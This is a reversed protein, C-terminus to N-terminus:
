SRKFRMLPIESARLHSEDFFGEIQYGFFELLAAEGLELPHFPFPYPEYDPDQLDEPDDVPHEGAWYPSEFDPRAGNEELIGNDPALSLSRILVGDRWVGYGLFDVVSHMTHLWACKKGSVKLFHPDLQSPYDIGFERAAIVTVGGFHGIFVEDEAPYTDWLDGDDLPEFREGPFYESLLRTTATRDLAPYGALASKPDADSVVLMSTKAGM